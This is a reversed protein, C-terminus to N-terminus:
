RLFGAPFLVGLWFEFVLYSIVATIGAGFLAGRWNPVGAIRLLALMAGFVSIWFGLISHLVAFAVLTSMVAYAKNVGLSDHFAAERAESDKETSVWRWQRFLIAGAVLVLGVGMLVPFFGIGPSRLSGLNYRTAYAVYGLGGVLLILPIPCFM